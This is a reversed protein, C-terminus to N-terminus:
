ARDNVNETIPNKTVPFSLLIGSHWTLPVEILEKADLNEANKM